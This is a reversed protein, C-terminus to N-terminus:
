ARGRHRDRDRGPRRLDHNRRPLDRRAPDCGTNKLTVEYTGAASVPVTAPRFGLDFAEIEFAGASAAVPQASSPAAPQDSANAAAPPTAPEPAFTWMMPRQSGMCGTLGLTLISLVAIYLSRRLM